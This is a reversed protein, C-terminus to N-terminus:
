NRMTTKEGDNFIIEYPGGAVPTKVTQLWSGQDNVTATVTKKDWSTTIKVKASPKSWGWLKVDSQQQLVMNSGLVAPLKVAAQVTATAAFLVAVVLTRFITCNIRM